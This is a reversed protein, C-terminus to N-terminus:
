GELAYILWAADEFCPLDHDECFKEAQAWLKARERISESCGLNIVDVKKPSSWDGEQKTGKLVLVYCSYSGYLTGYWDVEVPAENELRHKLDWWAREQASWKPNAAKWAKFDDYPGNNVEEPVLAYPDVMGSRKVLYEGLDQDPDDETGSNFPPEEGLDVGFALTASINKGM